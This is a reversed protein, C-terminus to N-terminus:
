PSVEEFDVPGCWVAGRRLYSEGAGVGERDDNLLHLVGRVTQSQLLADLTEQLEILGKHVPRYPVVAAHCHASLTSAGGMPRLFDALPPVPDRAAVGVILCTEDKYAPEATFLMRDRLAPFGFWDGAIGGPPVQLAAGILSATEAVIVLAVREAQCLALAAAALEGLALPPADPAAGFRLLHRFGGEAWLGHLLSIDPVLDGERALWDPHSPDDGPLTIALGDVALLEGARTHADNGSLTGLGLALTQTTMRRSVPHSIEGSMAGPRGLLAGHLSATRNLDYVEFGHGGHRWVRPGAPQSSQAPQAQVPAAHPAPADLLYQFGVQRLVERVPPTPDLLRLRGGIGKLQKALIVLVRIGASSLYSVGSLDLAIHHCGAHLTDQLAQGVNGSWAADLRGELEIRMEEGDRRTRIEM